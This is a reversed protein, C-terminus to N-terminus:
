TKKGSFYFGIITGILASSFALIESFFKSETFAAWFIGILLPFIILTALMPATHKDMRETM